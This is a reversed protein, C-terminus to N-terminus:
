QEMRQCYRAKFTNIHTGDRSAALEEEEAGKGVPSIKEENM